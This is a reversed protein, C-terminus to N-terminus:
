GVHGLGLQLGAHIGIRETRRKRLHRASVIGGQQALIEPRAENQIPLSVARTAAAFLHENGRLSLPVRPDDLVGSVCAAEVLRLRVVLSDPFEGIGDAPCAALPRAAMQEATITM